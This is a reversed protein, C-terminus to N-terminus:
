DNDNFLETMSYAWHMVQWGQKVYEIDISKAKKITNFGDALSDNDKQFSFFLGTFIFAIVNAILLGGM